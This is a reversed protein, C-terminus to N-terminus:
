AGRAADLTATMAAEVVAPDPAPEGAAAAFALFQAVAQGVLMRTGPVLAGGGATWAAAAAASEPAYAADLLVPPVAGPRGPAPASPALAGAPLTSVTVAERGLAADTLGSEATEAGLGRAWLALEGRARANRAIIRLRPTGLGVLALVASRATAGSGVVAASRPRGAGAARLAAAIGEVDTNLVRAGGDGAPAGAPPGTRVWTNGVGTQAASEALEWGRAAALRVLASKLPMTLSFGVHATDAGLVEPLAAEGVERRDYSWHEWGLAAYAAAHLRPSLSHAIPSGLVGPAPM